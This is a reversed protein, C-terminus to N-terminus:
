EYVWMKNYTFRRESFNWSETAPLEYVVFHTDPNPAYSSFDLNPYTTQAASFVIEVNLEKRKETRGSFSQLIPGAARGIVPIIAFTDGPETYRVEIRELKANTYTNGPRDNYTFSFQVEETSSNYTESSAHRKVNPTYNSKYWGRIIAVANTSITNKLATANGLNNVGKISGELAVQTYPSSSEFSEQITFRLLANTIYNNWGTGFPICIYESTETLEGIDGGSNSHSSKQFALTYKGGNPNSAVDVTGNYYGNSIYIQKGSLSKANSSATAVTSRAHRIKQTVTATYYGSTIDHNSENYWGYDTNYQIDVNQIWDLYGSDNDEYTEFTAVYEGFGCLNGEVFNLSTLRCNSYSQILVGDPGNIEIAVDNTAYATRLSKQQNLVTGYNGDGTVIHGHLTISTRKAISTGDNSNELAMTDTSIWPTPFVGGSSFSTGAHFGFILDKKRKRSNSYVFISNNDNTEM